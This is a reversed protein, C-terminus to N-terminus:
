NEKRYGLATLMKKMEDYRVKQMTIDATAKKAITFVKKGYYFENGKKGVAIVYVEEGAPVKRVTYRENSYEAPIFANLREFYILLRAGECGPTRAYFDTTQPYRLM